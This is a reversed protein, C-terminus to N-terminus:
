QYYSKPEPLKKYEEKNIIINEIKDFLERLQVEDKTISINKAEWLINKEKGDAIIKISYTPFPELQGVSKEKFNEPYSLINIKKMELYIDNMEADSLQLDTTISPEIVMDKTYQGNITDVQNKAKVGYSFVFNFNKPKSAPLQNKISISNCGILSYAILFLCLYIVIKFLRVIIGRKYMRLYM